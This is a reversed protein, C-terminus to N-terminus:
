KFSKPHVKDSSLKALMNEAKEIYKVALHCKRSLDMKLM